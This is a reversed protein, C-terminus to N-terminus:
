KDPLNLGGTTVLTNFGKVLCAWKKFPEWKLNVLMSTVCGPTRDTYNNFTYRAARRQVMELAEIDGQNSPDM